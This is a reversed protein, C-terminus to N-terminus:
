PEKTKERRPKLVGNHIAIVKAKKKDNGSRLFAFPILGFSGTIVVSIGRSLAADKDYGDKNLLVWMGASLLSATGITTWKGIRQGRRYRLFDERAIDDKPILKNLTNFRCPYYKFTGSDELFIRNVKMSSVGGAMPSGMTVMNRQMLFINIKGEEILRCDKGRINVLTHLYNKPPHGMRFKGPYYQARSEVCVLLLMFFCLVVRM